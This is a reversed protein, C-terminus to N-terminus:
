TEPVGSRAFLHRSFGLVMSFLWVLGLLSAAVM